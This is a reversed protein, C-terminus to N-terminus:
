SQDLDLRTDQLGLTAGITTGWKAASWNVGISQTYYPITGPDPDPSLSTRVLDGISMRGYVLGLDGIALQLRAAGLMGTAGVASATEIVELAVDGRGGSAPGAPNWFAATGGSALAPPVALTTAALRWLETGAGSQAALTAPALGVILRVIRQM